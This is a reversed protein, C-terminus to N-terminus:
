LVISPCSKSKKIYEIFEVASEFALCTYKVNSNLLAFMSQRFDDHDEVLAIEIKETDMFFIKEFISLQKLQVIM